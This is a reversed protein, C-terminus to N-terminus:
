PTVGLEDVKRNYRRVRDYLYGSRREADHDTVGKESATKQWDLAANFIDEKYSELEAPPPKPADKQEDKWATWLEKFRQQIAILAAHERMKYGYGPCADDLELEHEWAMEHIVQPTLESSESESVQDWFDWWNQEEQMEPDLDDQRDLSELVARDGHFSEHLFKEALYDPSLNGGFWGVGYSGLRSVIGFNPEFDGFIIIRGKVFVVNTSMHVTDPKGMRFAQVSETNEIVTLTNDKTAELYSAAMQQIKNAIRGM